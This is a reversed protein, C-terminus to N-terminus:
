LVEPNGSTTTIGIYEYFNLFYDSSIVSKTM